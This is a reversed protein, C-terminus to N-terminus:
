LVTLSSPSSTVSVIRQLRQPRDTWWDRRRDIMATLQKYNPTANGSGIIQSTLLLVHQVAAWVAPICLVQLRGSLNIEEEEM